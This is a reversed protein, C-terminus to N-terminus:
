SVTSMVGPITEAAETLIELDAALKVALVKDAPIGLKVEYDDLKTAAANAREVSVVFKSAAAIAWDHTEQAYKKMRELKVGGTAQKRKQSLKLKKAKLVKIAEAIEAEEKAFDLEPESNDEMPPALSKSSVQKLERKTEKKSM